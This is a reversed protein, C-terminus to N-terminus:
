TNAVYTVTACRRDHRVVLCRQSTDAACKEAGSHSFCTPDTTHRRHKALFRPALVSVEGLSGSTRIRDRITAATAVNTRAHAGTAEACGAVDGDSGSRGWIGLAPAGPSGTAMAFADSCAVASAVCVATVIPRLKKLLKPSALWVALGAVLMRLLLSNPACAISNTIRLAPM